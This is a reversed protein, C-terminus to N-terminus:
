IREIGRHALLACLMELYQPELAARSFRQQFSEAIREPHVSGSIFANGMKAMAEAFLDPRDQPLVLGLDASDIVEDLCGARTAIIPRGLAMVELAALCQGEFRTAQVFFHTRAAIHALDATQYPGHFHVRSPHAQVCPHCLLRGVEPGDGHLNLDISFKLNPEHSKLFAAYADLLAPVNKQGSLRGIFSAQIKPREEGVSPMPAPTGPQISSLLPMNWRRGKYGLFSEIQCSMRECQGMVANIQNLLDPRPRPRDRYTEDEEPCFSPIYLTPIPPHSSSGLRTLLSEMVRDSFLKLFIVLDFRSLIPRLRFELARDPIDYSVGRTIPGRIVSCGAQKMTGLIPSGGRIPWYALSVHAGSRILFESLERTFIEIGGMQAFGGMALLIKPQRSWQLDNM